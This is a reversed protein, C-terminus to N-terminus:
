KGKEEGTESPCMEDQVEERSRKRAQRQGANEEEMSLKFPTQAKGLRPKKVLKKAEATSVLEYDLM